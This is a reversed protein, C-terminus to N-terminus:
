SAYCFLVLVGTCGFFYPSAASPTPLSGSQFGDVRGAITGVEASSPCGQHLDLGILKDITCIGLSVPPQPPWLRFIELNCEAKNCQLMCATCRLSAARHPKDLHLSSEQLHSTNTYSLLLPHPPSSSAAKVGSWHSSAPSSVIDGGTRTCRSVVM